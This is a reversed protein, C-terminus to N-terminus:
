RVAKAMMFVPMLLGLVVVLVVAAMVLLMAPELLRVFLKLERSTRKESTEAVDMLVKELNNSEEGVAIIAVVDRPFYPCQSLPEALSQGSSINEAAQDVASALVRNGM